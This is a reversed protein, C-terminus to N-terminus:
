ADDGKLLRLHSFAVMRGNGDDMATQTCEPVGGILQTRWLHGAASVVMSEDYMPTGKSGHGHTPTWGVTAVPEGSDMVTGSQVVELESALFDQMVPNGVEGTWTAGDNMAVDGMFSVSVHRSRMTSWGTVVGISGEMPMAWRFALRDVARTRVVTGIPLLAKRPDDRLIADVSEATALEAEARALRDAEYAAVEADLRSMEETEFIEPAHRADRTARSRLDKTEKRLSELRKAHKAGIVVLIRELASKEDEVEGMAIRAEVLDAATSEDMTSPGDEIRKALTRLSAELRDARARQLEDDVPDLSATRFLTCNWQVSSREYQERAMMEAGADGYLDSHFVSDRVEADQYRLMWVSPREGPPGFSAREPVGSKKGSHSDIAMDCAHRMAFARADRHDADKLLERAKEILGLAEDIKSRM